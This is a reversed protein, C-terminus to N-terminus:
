KLSFSKVIDETSKINDSSEKTSYSGTIIYALKDKVAYTQVFRVLISEPDKKAEFTTIYSDVQTNGIHMKSVDRKDEVYNLLGSKQRNIVEKAYELTAQTTQLNKRVINVNTTFDDNKVNNRVVLMTEKPVDSTFDKAEIVDWERPIRLTFETNDVVRFRDDVPTKPTTNSSGCGAVTLLSFALLAVLCTKKSNM